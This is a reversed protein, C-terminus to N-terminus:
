PRKGNAGARLEKVPRKGPEPWIDTVAYGLEKALMRKTSRRPEARGTEVHSIGATSMEVAEALARVSLGRRKRAVALPHPDAATSGLTPM